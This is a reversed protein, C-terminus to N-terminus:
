KQLRNNIMDFDLVKSTHKETGVIWFITIFSLIWNDKPSINFKNFKHWTNMETVHLLFFFFYLLFSGFHM